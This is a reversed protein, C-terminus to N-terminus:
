QNMFLKWKFAEREVSWKEYANAAIIMPIAGTQPFNVTASPMNSDKQYVTVSIDNSAPDYEVPLDITHLVATYDPLEGTEKNGTNYM